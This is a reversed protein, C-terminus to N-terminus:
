QGFVDTQKFLFPWTHWFETSHLILSLQTGELPGGLARGRRSWRSGTERDVFNGDRFEFTLVRGDELLRNYVSPEGVTKKNASGIIDQDPDKGPEWFIVVHEGSLTDNVVRVRELLSYPYARAQDLMYMGVIRERDPLRPDAVRGYIETEEFFSAWSFWFHTIHLIKALRKGKLPGEVAQGWINWQSGTEQDVFKSDTFEFILVRGDLLRDFVTATGVDRGKRVTRSDLVSSVGPKWLVVLDRGGLSDNVVRERELIFYPYAKAKDQIRVGAVREMGLVRTDGEGFFLFPYNTDYGTYPQIGYPFGLGTDQSLVKGVPFREQFDEFSVVETPLFELQAGTFSGVIAKGTAQQWWSETLGDWMILDSFRLLGSTGFRLEQGDVVRDFSIATTCLPCYTVVVPRGGVVDNVIEHWILIQLPYARTDGNSELVAVPEQAELWKAAQAVTEFKPNDIPRIGDRSPGGAIVQELDVSRKSFDTKWDTGYSYIFRYGPDSRSLDAVESEPNSLTEPDRADTM